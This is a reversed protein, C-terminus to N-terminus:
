PNIARRAREVIDKPTAYLKRVVDQVYEGSLPAIDIRTKEADALFQPDAMTAAFATRLLAIRDPPTEPAVIFPRQFLQQSIVLEVVKRDTEDTVFKFVGPVGLKDLEANTELGVQLLINATKDRIWDPKQAKMSAWDWGCFAEIEHRELALTLDSTGKYGTVLDFIAGTTHKLLYGYDRTADNTAIAGFPMKITRADAFTAIRSDGRGVCIRVGNNANGLYVVKAPDFLSETSPDLLPNMVPGSQISGIVTGDKAGVNSVYGAARASGAGPMNKPVISPQGPIHRGLHRSITRAYIDYGGAPAAGIIMEISKGAFFDAAQAPIAAMGAAAFTTLVALTSHANKLMSTGLNSKSVIKDPLVRM